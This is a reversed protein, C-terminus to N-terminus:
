LDNISFSTIYSSHRLNSISILTIRLSVISREHFVLSFVFLITLSNSSILINYDFWVNEQVTMLMAISLLVIKAVCM